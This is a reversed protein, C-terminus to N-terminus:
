GMKGGNWFHKSARWLLCDGIKPGGLSKHFLGGRWDKARRRGEDLQCSSSKKSVKGKMKGVIEFTGKGEDEEVEKQTGWFPWEIKTHSPPSNDFHNSRNKQRDKNTGREATGGASEEL